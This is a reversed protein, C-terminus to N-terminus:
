KQFGVSKGAPSDLVELSAMDFHAWKVLMVTIEGSPQRDRVVWLGFEDAWQVFVQVYETDFIGFLARKGEPSLRLVVDQGAWYNM